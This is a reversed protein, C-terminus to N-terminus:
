SCPFDEAVGVDALVLVLFDLLFLDFSSLDPFDFTSAIDVDVYLPGPFDDLNGKSDSGKPSPNYTQDRIITLVYSSNHRSKAVSDGSTSYGCYM